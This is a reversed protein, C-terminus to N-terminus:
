RGRRGGAGGERGVGGSLLRRDSRDPDFERVAEDPKGLPAGEEERAGRRGAREPHFGGLVLAEGEQEHVGEREEVAVADLEIGSPEAIDEGVVGRVDGDERDDRERGLRVAHAGRVELRRGGDVQARAARTLEHERARIEAGATREGPVEGHLRALRGPARRFLDEFWYGDDGDLRWADDAVWPLESPSPFFRHSFRHPALLPAAPYPFGHLLPDGIQGYPAVPGYQAGAWGYGFGFTPRCTARLHIRDARGYPGFKRPGALYPARVRAVCVLDEFGYPLGSAV